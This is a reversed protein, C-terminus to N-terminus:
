ERLHLSCPLILLDNIKANLGCDELLRSCHSCLSKEWVTIDFHHWWCITYLLRQKPNFSLCLSCMTLSLTPGHQKGLPLSWASPIKAQDLRYDQSSRPHGILILTHLAISVCVYSIFHMQIENLFEINYHHIQEVKTNYTLPVSRFESEGVGVM